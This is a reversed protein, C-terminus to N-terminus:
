PVADKETATVSITKEIKLLFPPEANSGGDGHYTDSHPSQGDSPKTGGSPDATLRIGLPNEKSWVTVSITLAAEKKGSFHIVFPVSPRPASVFTATDGSSNHEFVADSEFVAVGDQAHITISCAEVKLPSSVTISGISREFYNELSTRVTLFRTTDEPQAAAESRYYHVVPEESSSDLPKKILSQRDDTISYVLTFPSQIAAKHMPMLLIWVILGLFLSGTLKCQLPLKLLPRANKRKKDISLGLRILFLDFPVFICAAASNIFFIIPFMFHRYIVIHTIFPMLPLFLGIIFIIQLVINKFQYAILAIVYIMMFVISFSLNIFSFIFINLLCVAHGMFGYIFRNAPLPIFRNFATFAFMFFLAFTYKMALATLPFATMDAMSSFRLYFLLETMKSGLLFGGWNVLFFYGPMWWLVFLDRIHQERKRGFLFSFVILWLLFLISATILVTIIHQENAILLTQHIRWVFFHTDWENSINQTVSAAFADFFGSLDANTEIKIAPIRAENYLRLLPDDPIWGIRHFVVAHTYFDPVIKEHQLSAYASKLLWSPATGESTGTILRARGPEGPSILCVAANPYASLTKILSRSGEYRKVPIGDPLESIDNKTIAVMIHVDPARASLKQALERLQLSATTAQNDSNAAATFVIIKDTQPGFEYIINEGCLMQLPLLALVFAFIRLFHPPVIRHM